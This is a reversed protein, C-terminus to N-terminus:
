RFFLFMTWKGPNASNFEALVLGPGFSAKEIPQRLHPEQCLSETCPIYELFRQYHFVLTICPFFSPLLPHMILGIVAATVAAEDWASVSFHYLIRAEM